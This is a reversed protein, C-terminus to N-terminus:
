KKAIFESLDVIDSSNMIEDYCRQADDICNIFRFSSTAVYEQSMEFVRWKRNLTECVYGTSNSGGFIDVVLDNEDTLFKIFFEPLALPFRAPHPKVNILKCARLYQNKNDANSIELLNSPLSGKNKQWTTGKKKFLKKMSKSYKKLVKTTDAKPTESPSLWWVNNVNDKARIKRRCVYMSPYPLRSPNYWYFPQSLNLKLEHILRVLIEFSYINYCAKGHLYSTGFDVVISGTPKLKPIMLKFFEILWDNYKEQSENGYEKPYILPYPPSTIFLDVSGDKLDEILQRSDGCICEGFLTKYGFM